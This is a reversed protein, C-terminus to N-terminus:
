VARAMREVAETLVEPSCGLNLRVFGRGPPGFAPGNGLAVGSRELMVAAPDDGLGLARCDLWALYSAQPPTWSVAPLQEDLLRGLLRTNAALAELLADLWPEGQVYAAEAALAGFLGTGYTMGVPLAALVERPRAGTAVVLACKLGALNWAKSASHLALGTEVADGSVTLYPVFGTPALPAHIEDALVTAGYRAALSALAALEAREHVRGTPNHPSCLLVVRCGDRLAGEIGTLDLRGGDAGVLPVEVARAGVAELWAWFPPYVPPMIVVSAGPAVLHRLVEVTGAAVDACTRLGAPDVAWGWRRGAFGCFAALLATPDGAYGTDSRELARALAQGVPPALRVDLEAVPLPLVSAPHETWKISRRRKLDALPVDLPYVARM